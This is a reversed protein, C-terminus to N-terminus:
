IGMGVCGRFGSLRPIYLLPGEFIGKKLPRVAERGSMYLRSSLDVTIAPNPNTPNRM